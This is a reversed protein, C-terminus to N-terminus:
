SKKCVEPFHGAENVMGGRQGGMGLACAKCANNSRLRRYLGRLSGVEYGKKFIYLVSSLGGAASLKPKAM